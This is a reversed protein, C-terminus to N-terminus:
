VIGPIGEGPLPMGLSSALKSTEEARLQTM